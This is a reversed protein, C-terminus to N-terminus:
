EMQRSLLERELTFAHLREFSEFLEIVFSEMPTGIMM